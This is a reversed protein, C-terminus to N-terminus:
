TYGPTLAGYLSVINDYPYRFEPLQSGLAWQDLTYDLALRGNQVFRQLMTYVNVVTKVPVMTNNPGSVWVLETANTNYWYAIKLKNSYNFFGKFKENDLHTFVQNEMNTEYQDSLNKIKSVYKALSEEKNTVTLPGTGRAAWSAKRMTYLMEFSSHAGTLTYDM